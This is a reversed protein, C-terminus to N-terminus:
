GQPGVFKDPPSPVGPKFNIIGTADQSNPSLGNNALDVDGPNSARRMDRQSKKNVKEDSTFQIFLPSFVRKAWYALVAWLLYKMKMPIEQYM